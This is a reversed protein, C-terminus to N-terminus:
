ETRKMRWQLSLLLRGLVLATDARLKAEQAGPQKQAPSSEWCRCMIEEAGEGWGAGAGPAM